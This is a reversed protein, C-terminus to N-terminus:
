EAGWIRLMPNNSIVKGYCTWHSEFGSAFAWRTLTDQDASSKWQLDHLGSLRKFYDFTAEKYQYRGYEGADGYLGDHRFTSECQEVKLLLVEHQLDAVGAELHLAYAELEGIESLEDACVNVAPQEPPTYKTDIIVALAGCWAVMLAVIIWLRLWNM